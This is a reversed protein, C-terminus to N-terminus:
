WVVWQLIPAPRSRGPLWNRFPATGAVVTISVAGPGTKSLRDAVDSYYVTKTFHAATTSGAVTVNTIAGVQFSTATPVATVVQVGDLAPTSGSAVITVSDGARLGHARGCNVTAPVGAGSVPISLIAYDYAGTTGAAGGSTDVPVSFTTPTLM